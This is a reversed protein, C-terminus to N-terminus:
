RIGEYGKVCRLLQRRTQKHHGAAWTQGTYPSRGVALYDEILQVLPTIAQPSASRELRQM